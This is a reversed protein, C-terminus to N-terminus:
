ELYGLQRLRYLVEPDADTPPDHLPKDVVAYSRLYRRLDDTIGRKKQAINNTEGPDAALDYLEEEVVQDNVRTEIYKYQEYRIARKREGPLSNKDGSVESVAVRDENVLMQGNSDILSRGEFEDPIDAGAVSLITPAVDLLRVQHEVITGQIENPILGPATIILPVRLLTDYLLRPHGYVGHEGLCEGHDATVIVVSHQLLGLQKLQTIVRHLAADIERVKTRYTSKLLHRDTEDISQPSKISCRWLNWLQRRSLPLSETPLSCDPMYPGHVDM